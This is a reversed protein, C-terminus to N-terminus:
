PSPPRARAPVPHRVPRPVGPRPGRGAPGPREADHLREAHRHHLGRRRPRRLERGLPRVGARGRGRAPRQLARLEGLPVIGFVAVTVLIYLVAAFARASCPRARSPSTRASSVGRGPRDGVGAGPLGVPDPRQLGGARRLHRSREHEAARLALPRRVGPRGDRTLLLPVLKLITTAVQFLGAEKVGRVNIWTVLWIAGLAAALGAVPQERLVPSSTLRPLRVLAVAVAANGSWLTIWYGWAVLFGAFDGFGRARTPTPAAPRPCWGRWAGSCWPSRSRGPRRSWGAASRSAASRHSRPRCPSSARASWTASWWPPAPGSASRNRRRREVPRGRSFEPALGGSAAVPRM